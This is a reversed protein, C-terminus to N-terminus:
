KNNNKTIKWHGGKAPGIYNVLNLKKLNKLHYRVGEESLNIEKAIEM